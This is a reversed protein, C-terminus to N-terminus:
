AASPSASRATPSPLGHFRQREGRAAQAALEQVALERCERGREHACDRREGRDRRERIPDLACDDRRGRLEDAAVEADCRSTRQRVLHAVFRLSEPKRRRVDRIEGADHEDAVFAPEAVHTRGIGAKWQTADKGHAARATDFLRHVRRRRSRNVDIMFYQYREADLDARFHLDATAIKHDRAVDHARRVAAVHEPERRPEYHIEGVRLRGTQETGATAHPVAQEDRAFRGRDIREAYPRLRMQRRAGLDRGDLIRLLIKTGRELTALAEQTERCQERRKKRSDGDRKGRLPECPAFGLLNRQQATETGATALDARSRM